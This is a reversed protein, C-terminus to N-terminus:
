HKTGAAPAPAPEFEAVVMSGDSLRLKGDAISWQTVTAMSQLYKRELEM